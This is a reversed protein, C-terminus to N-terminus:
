FFSSISNNFKKTLEEVKINCIEKNQVNIKLNDKSVYGIKKIYVSKPNNTQLDKLFSLWHSEKTRNTSFIIRSGGESFLPNDLRIYDDFLEITAGKMSLICAESLAVALGGDGVDHSSVVFDNIIASRLFSQCFKEDQLDIRPPRGTIEGHFYELYSSAAITSESASSGVLWISDNINRWGSSVVKEINDIKGVMGIVPTPYIPTIENLKNKSENYLSM